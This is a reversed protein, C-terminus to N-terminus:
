LNIQFFLKQYLKFIQWRYFRRGLALWGYPYLNRYKKVLRLNLSMLRGRNTQTIGQPHIRYALVIDSLNYFKGKLGLRLWLDYDEVGDIGLSYTGLKSVIERRYILSSHVLPNKILLRNKIKKDTQPPIITKIKKDQEDVFTIGGGVLVYDPNKDLFDVQKKLKDKDLWYDDSDLIAIYEGQSNELAKNRSLSIGSNKENKLYVIRPDKLYPTILERTNDTSCDDIIILEWNLLSQDLVSEIAQLVFRERNYTILNISVKPKLPPTQEM